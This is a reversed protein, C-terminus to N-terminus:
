SAVKVCSKYELFMFVVEGKLPRPQSETAPCKRLEAGLVVQHGASLKRLLDEAVKRDKSDCTVAAIDVWIKAALYRHELKSAFTRSSDLYQASHHAEFYVLSRVAQYFNEKDEISVNEGAGVIEQAIVEVGRRLVIDAMMGDVCGALLVTSLLCIAFRM